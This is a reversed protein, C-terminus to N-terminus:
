RMVRRFTVVHLAVVWWPPDMHMLFAPAAWMLCRATDTGVLRSAFAVGLAVWAQLPAGAYAAWLPIGRLAWVLGGENLLDVHPKHALMTALTSKHGVLRDALEPSAHHAPAQKAWWQVAFLGVLLIPTGAYLAAFIPGREHVAGSAAAICVALVPHSPWLLAAGMALAMSPGDVTTPWTAMTMAGVLSVFMLARAPTGLMCSIAVVALWSCVMLLRPPWHHFRRHFPSPQPEGSTYRAGDQTQHIGQQWCYAAVAAVAICAAAIMAGEDV